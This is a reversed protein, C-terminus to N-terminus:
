VQLFRDRLKDMVAILYRQFAKGVERGTRGAV